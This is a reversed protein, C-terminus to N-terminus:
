AHEFRGMGSIRILGLRVKSASKARSFARSEGSGKSTENSHTKLFCWGYVMFMCRRSISFLCVTLFVCVSLFTWNCLMVYSVSFIFLALM